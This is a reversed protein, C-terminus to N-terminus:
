PNLNKKIELSRKCLLEAEDYKGQTRYLAAL